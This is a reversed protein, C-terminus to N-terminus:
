GRGFPKAPRACLCLFVSLIKEAEYGAGCSRPKQPLVANGEAVTDIGSKFDGM